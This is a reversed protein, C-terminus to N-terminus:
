LPQKRLMLWNQYVKNAYVSRARQCETGKLKRCAANYAGVANWNKGHQRYNNALIWAGVHVNICPAWVEAESIGYKSALVPLWSRNIGMLGIDSTHSEINPRFSSETYAIARLMEPDINYRKGAEKYCHGYSLQSAILLAAALVYQSISAKFRM